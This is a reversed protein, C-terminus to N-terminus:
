YKDYEFTYPKVEETKLVKKYITEFLKKEGPVGTGNYRDWIAGKIVFTESHFSSPKLKIDSPVLKKIFPTGIEDFSVYYVEFYQEKPESCFGKSKIMVGGTKLARILHKTQKDTLM